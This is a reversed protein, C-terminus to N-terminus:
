ASYTRSKRSAFAGGLDTRDPHNKAKSHVNLLFITNKLILSIKEFHTLTFNSGDFPEVVFFTIPKDLTLIPRVYKDMEGGYGHIAELAQSFTFPYFKDDFLSLLAGSGGFYASDLLSM